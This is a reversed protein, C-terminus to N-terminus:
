VKTKTNSITNNITGSVKLQSQTQASPSDQTTDTAVALLRGDTNNLDGAAINFRKAQVVGSTNDIDKAVQWTQAGVSLIEGETNNVSDVNISLRSDDNSSTGAHIIKGSSNDLTTTNLTLNDSNSAIEGRTNDIGETLTLTLDQEGTQTLKGDTNNLRQADIELVRGSLVGSTNDLTGNTSSLTLTDTATISANTTNIGTRATTNISSGQTNSDLLSIDGGSLSVDGTAIHNGQSTIDGSAITLEFYFRYSQLLTSNAIIKRAQQECAHCLSCFIQLWYCQITKLIFRSYSISIQM